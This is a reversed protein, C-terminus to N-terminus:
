YTYPNDKKPPTIYDPPRESRNATPPLRDAFVALVILVMGTFHVVMRLLSFLVTFTLGNGRAFNMVLPFLFALGVINVLLVVSAIIALTAARPFQQYRMISVIAVVVWLGFELVQPIYFLWSLSQQAM